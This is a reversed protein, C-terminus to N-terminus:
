LPPPTCPRGASIQRLAPPFRGPPRSGRSFLDVGGPRRRVWWGAETHLASAAVGATVAVIPATPVVEPGSMTCLGRALLAAVGAAVVIDTAAEPNIRLHQRVAEAQDSSARLLFEIEAFTLVLQEPM